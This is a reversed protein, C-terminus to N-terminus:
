HQVAKGAGDVVVDLKKGDRQIVAEYSVDSGRTVTEVKIVKGQASLAARVAPPVADLTVAEEVAVLRGETDFLLDRAHGSRCRRADRLVDAGERNGEVRGRNRRRPPEPRGGTPRCAAVAEIPDRVDDGAMVNTSLAGAVIAMAVSMGAKM